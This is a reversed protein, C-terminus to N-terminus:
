SGKVTEERSARGRRRMSRFRFSGMERIEMWIYHASVAAAVVAYTVLHLALSSADLLWATLVIIAWGSFLIPIDHVTFV